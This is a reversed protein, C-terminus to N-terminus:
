RGSDNKPDQRRRPDRLEAARRPSAPRGPPPSRERPTGEGMAVTFRGNEAILRADAFAAGLLPMVAVRRQVVLVLRGGPRLHRPAEAILRELVQRSEVIGDHIPPNSVILDYRADGAASLGAGLLGRAGPVNDAAATLALADAEIMDIDLGTARCSVAAALVGTGAAFDLVRSGVRPTPLHEILWATGEDLGGKAFTGPYSIWPRPLGAITISGIRKWDSLSPKLGDITAKRRGALVRSHHKAAATAVDDTVADLRQAASRIGEDNAGFVAILGGPLVKGAAAHLALDLADKAKPLRILAADYGDGEPWPSARTAGPAAQRLWIGPKAGRSRLTAALRGSREDVILPRHMPQSVELCELMVLTPADASPTSV